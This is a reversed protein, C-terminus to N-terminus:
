HHESTLAIAYERFSTCQRRSCWCEHQFQENETGMNYMNHLDKYIYSNRTNIPYFLNNISKEITIDHINIM